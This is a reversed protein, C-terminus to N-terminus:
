VERRQVASSEGFSQGAEYGAEFTTGASEFEKSLLGARDQKEPLGAAARNRADNVERQLEDLERDVEEELDKLVFKLRELADKENVFTANTAEDAKAVIVAKQKIMTQLQSEENSFDVPTYRAETTLTDSHEFYAPVPVTRVEKNIKRYEKLLRNYTADIQEAVIGAAQNVGKADELLQRYKSCKEGATKTLERILTRQENMLTIITDQFSLKFSEYQNLANSYQKLRRGYGPYIDGISRYGKYLGLLSLLVGIAILMISNMNSLNLPSAMFHGFAQQMAKEPMPGEMLERYHGVMLNFCFNIFLYTATLMCAVWRYFKDVHNKYRTVFYGVSAASVVNLCSIAMAQILGGVLGLANGKLFLWSNLLSEILIILTILAFQLLSSEPVIADRTLDNRAKFSALERMKKRENRRLPLMTMKARERERMLINSVTNKVTEIEALSSDLNQKEREDALGEQVRASELILNNMTELLHARIKVQPQDFATSSQEPLNNDGQSAASNVIALREKLLDFNPKLAQIRAAHDTRAM